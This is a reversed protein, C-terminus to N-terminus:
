PGYYVYTNQLINSGLSVIDFVFGIKPLYGFFDLGFDYWAARWEAATAGYVKLNRLTWADRYISVTDAGWGAYKAVPVPILNGALGVLDLTADLRDMRSMDFKLHMYMQNARLPGYYPAAPGGRGFPRAISYVNGAWAADVASLLNNGSQIFLGGEREALV